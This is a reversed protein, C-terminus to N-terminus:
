KEKKLEYADWAAFDLYEYVTDVCLYYGDHKITDYEEVNGQMGDFFTVWGTENEKLESKSIIYSDMNEHAVIGDPTDYYMNGDYMETGYIDTAIPTYEDGVKDIQLWNDYNTM